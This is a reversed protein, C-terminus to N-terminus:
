LTVLRLQQAHYRGGQDDPVSQLFGEDTLHALLNAIEERRDESFGLIDRLPLGRSFCAIAVYLGFGHYPDFAYDTMDGWLGEPPRVLSGDDRTITVDVRTSM